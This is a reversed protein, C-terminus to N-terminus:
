RTENHRCGRSALGTSSGSHLHSSQPVWREGSHHPSSAPNTSSNGVKPGTHKVLAQASPCPAPPASAVHHTVAIPSGSLPQRLHRWWGLAMEKERRSRCPGCTRAGWPHGPGRTRSLPNQALGLTPHDSFPRRRWVGSSTSRVGNPSWSGPELDILM